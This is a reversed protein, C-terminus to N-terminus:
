LGFAALSLNEQLLKKVREIRKRNMEPGAPGMSGKLEGITESAGGGSKIDEVFKGIDLDAFPQGLARYAQDKIWRYEELSLGTANLAEIQGRKADVWTSALDGYASLIAAADTISAEKKETLTKYKAEFAAMREGLRRRVEAQVKVLKDIQIDTLEASEPPVFADQNRLDRELDPVQSFEQFQALTASVQRYAYYAVGAAAVGLVLLVLGCGMALKKM